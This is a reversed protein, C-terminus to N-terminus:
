DQKIGFFTLWEKRLRRESREADKSNLYAMGSPLTQWAYSPRRQLIGYVHDFRMEFKMQEDDKWDIEMGDNKEAVDQMIIEKAEAETM